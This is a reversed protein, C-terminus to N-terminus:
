LNAQPIEEVKKAKFLGKIIVKIESSMYPLKTWPSKHKLGLNVWRDKEEQTFNLNYVTEAGLALGPIRVFNRILITRENLTIIWENSNRTYIETM